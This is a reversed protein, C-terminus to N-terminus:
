GFVVLASAMAGSLILDPSPDSASATAPLAPPDAETRTGSNDQQEQMFHRHIFLSVVGNQASHGGTFDNPSAADPCSSLVPNTPSLCQDSVLADGFAAHPSLLSLPLLAIEAKLREGANPHLTAFPFINEDFVVDSSIYIRGEAPDLCKFGKHMNSYGLFVCKKSRFQLKKSNYPRLNPWVACWFTCIFSYDPPIGYLCKIPTQNHIIKSPLCNILFVATLFAKDWFKLPICAHALLTLGM